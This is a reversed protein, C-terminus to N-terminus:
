DKFTQCHLPEVGAQLQAARAAYEPNPKVTEVRKMLAVDAQRQRLEHSSQLNLWFQPTTSFYRALLLAVTVSIPIQGSLLKSVQATSIGLEKAFTIQSINLPHFFDVYLVHAPSSADSVPALVVFDPRKM